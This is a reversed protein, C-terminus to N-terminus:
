PETASVTWTFPMGPLRKTEANLTEASDLVAVYRGPMSVQLAVRGFGRVPGALPAGCTADWLTLTADEWPLVYTVVLPAGEAVEVVLAVDAGAANEGDDHESGHGLLGGTWAGLGVSSLGTAAMCDEGVSAASFAAYDSLDVVSARGGGATLRATREYQVRGVFVTDARARYVTVHFRGFPLEPVIDRVTLIAEGGAGLGTASLRIRGVFPSPQQAVDWHSFAAVLGDTADDVPDTSADWRVVLEDDIGMVLTCPPESGSYWAWCDAPVDGTPTRAWVSVGTLPPPVLFGGPVDHVVEGTDSDAIIRFTGSRSSWVDEDQGVTPAPDYSPEYPSYWNYYWQEPGLRLAGETADVGDTSLELPGLRSLFYNDVEVTFPLQTDLAGFVEATVRDEVWEGVLPLAELCPGSVRCCDVLNLPADDTNALVVNGAEGCISVGDACVGLNYSVSGWTWPVQTLPPDPPRGPAPSADCAVVIALLADAVRSAM